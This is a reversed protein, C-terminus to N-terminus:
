LKEIPAYEIMFSKKTKNDFRIEIYENDLKEVVGTGFINHRIRDGVKIDLKQPPAEPPVEENNIVQIYKPPIENLFRSPLSKQQMGMFSRYNTYAIYLKEKARTIGVYCLRREEEIEALSNLSNYHPLLNEEFGVLFVIRFELGKAAHLTMLTVRNPDIKEEGSEKDILAVDTLFKTIAKQPPLEKYKEAVTILEEINEIRTQSQPTGDDVWDIYRIEKILYNIFNELRKTKSEKQLKEILYAFKRLKENSFLTKELEILPKRGKKSVKMIIEGPEMKAIKALNNLQKLTKKGIGRPPTNIIRLLASTDKPNYIFRLYAIIDKVEKRQYYKIGGILKYPLREKIFMEELVRSQANVRYLVGIDGLSIKEKMFKKVTQAVFVAEDVEDLAQYVYVKEGTKNKTWLRKNKRQTNNKIIHYAADLINKTSRYNQELKILKATPYDNEFSFINQITAGRWTYINQDDDGCVTICQHKQALKNLILYQAYNTDQYEDVLIHKFKNQYKKLIEPKYLLEVTKFLIDGFDLANQKMLEKQYLPYIEAILRYDDTNATNSFMQPTVLDDKARSIVSVIRKPNIDEPSIKLKRIIERIISLQDDEDFIVFNKSINLNNAEKRLIKVCVSHFTGLYPLFKQPDAKINIIKKVRERMEQAAKNTFTVAFIESPKIGCKQILYAIRYTIVKTKGSGAGALILLPGKSYIVARKQQSNLEELFSDM